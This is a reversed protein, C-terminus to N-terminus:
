SIVVRNIVYPGAENGVETPATPVAVGPAQRTVAMSYEVSVILDRRHLPQQRADEEYATGSYTLTAKTGDPMVLTRLALEIAADIAKALLDRAAPRPSWVSIQVDQSLRRVERSETGGGVVRATVHWAGPITITAGAASAPRDAVILAALAAAVQEPTQGTAIPLTYAAAHNVVVAAIMDPQSGTGAFSATEEGATATMSPAPGPTDRWGDIYPRMVQAMGSRPWITVHAIQAKLDADLSADPWGVYIRVPIGAISAPAPGAPVGDPYLVRAVENRIATLVESLDAM